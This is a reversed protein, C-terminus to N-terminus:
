NQERERKESMRKSFEAYTENGADADTLGENIMPPELGAPLTPPASRVGEDTNAVMTNGTLKTLMEAIIAASQSNTKNNQEEQKLRKISISARDMDSLIGALISIEKPDKPMSTENDTMTGVLKKRISRTYDLDLEEQPVIKDIDM